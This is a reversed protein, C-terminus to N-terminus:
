KALTKMAIKDNPDSKNKNFLVCLSTTVILEEIMYVVAWATM